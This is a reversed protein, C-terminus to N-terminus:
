LSGFESDPVEIQQDMHERVIIRLARLQAPSVTETAIPAVKLGLAALVGCLRQINEAQKNFWDSFASASMGMREAVRAQTQDRLAKDIANRNRQSRAAISEDMM